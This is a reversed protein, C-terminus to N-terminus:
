KKRVTKLVPHSFPVETPLYKNKPYLKQPIILFYQFTYKKLFTRCASNHLIKETFLNPTM